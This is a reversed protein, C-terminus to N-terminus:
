NKYEVKLLGYVDVDEYNGLLLRNQKLTGEKQLNAKELVKISAKNRSIASAWIKNLNLEAFGFRIIRRVAESAYGKGWYDKGIWYGLEGKNNNKDVRLTITGVIEESEKCVVALPYEIGNNILEPQTAIWDKAMELEYPHPFGLINALEQDNALDRIRIADDKKFPQICLRETELKISM